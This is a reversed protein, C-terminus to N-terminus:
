RGDVGRVEHGPAVSSRAGPGPIGLALARVSALARQTATPESDSDVSAAHPPAPTAPIGLTVRQAAAALDAADIEALAVMGSPTLGVVLRRDGVAVLHLSAKAALTRSEVISLHSGAPAPGGQIRRLVRLTVYLLVLVIVGKAGLDLLDPSGASGALGALTTSTPAAFQVTTAPQVPSSLVPAPTATATATPAFADAASGDSGPRGIGAITPVATAVLALALIAATLRRHVVLPALRALIPGLIPSVRSGGDRAITRLAAGVREGPLRSRRDRGAPRAM